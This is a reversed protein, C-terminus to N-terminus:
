HEGLNRGRDVIAELLDDRVAFGYQAYLTRSRQTPWLIASDVGEDRCCQMAAEMLKHGLGQGRYPERVYANTLYAHKELEVVPNPIKEVLQLWLHGVIVGGDEAVWCRWASRPGLRKRMWSAARRVFADVSETPEGRPARFEYRLRALDLADDPSATRIIPEKTVNVL